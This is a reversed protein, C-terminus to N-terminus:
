LTFEGLPTIGLISQLNGFNPSETDLDIPSEVVVTAHREFESQLSLSIAQPGFAKPSMRFTGTAREILQTQAKRILTLSRM